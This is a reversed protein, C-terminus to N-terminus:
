NVSVYGSACCTVSSTSVNTAFNLATASTGRLPVPFTASFSGAAGAAMQSIGGVAMVTSGDKFDLSSAVTASTNKCVIATVYIRNSAVSAKIAVDSTTATATGCSQFSEGAPAFTILSRGMRDTKPVVYDGTTGQDLTLPDQSVFGAAVIADGSSAALDETKMLGSTTNQQYATDLQFNPSVRYTGGAGATSILPAPRLLEFTENNVVTAPFANAVTLTNTAVATVYSWARINPANGGTGLLIDGVRATSEVGTIKISTTTSGTTATLGATDVAQIPLVGLGGLNTNSSIPLAEQLYSSNASGTVTLLKGSKTVAFYNAKGDASVLNTGAENSRGLIRTGGAGLSLDDGQNQAFALVPFLAAVLFSLAKKMASNYGPHLM